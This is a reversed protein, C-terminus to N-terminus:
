DEKMPLPNGAEDLDEVIECTERIMDADVPEWDFAHEGLSAAGAIAEEDTDAPVVAYGCRRICVRKLTKPM